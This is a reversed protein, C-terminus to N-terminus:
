MLAKADDIFMGTVRRKADCDILLTGRSFIHFWNHFWCRHWGGGFEMQLWNYLETRQCIGQDSTIRRVGRVTLGGFPEDNRSM